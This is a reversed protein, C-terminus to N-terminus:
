IGTIGHAVVFENHMCHFSGQFKRLLRPFLDLYTIKPFIAEGFTLSLKRFVVSHVCLYVLKSLNGLHDPLTGILGRRSLIRRM